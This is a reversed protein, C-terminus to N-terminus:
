YLDSQRLYWVKEYCKEARFIFGYAIDEEQEEDLKNERATV